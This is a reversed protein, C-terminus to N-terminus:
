GKANVMAGKLSSELLTEKTTAVEMAEDQQTKRVDSRVQMYEMLVQNRRVAATAQPMDAISSTSM